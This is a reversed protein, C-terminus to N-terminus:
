LRCLVYSCGLNGDNAYSHGPGSVITQLGQGAWSHSALLPSAVMECEESRPGLWGCRPRDQAPSKPSQDPWSLVSSFIEDRLLSPVKIRGIQYRPVFLDGTVSQSQRKEHRAGINDTISEGPQQLPMPSTVSLYCHGARGISTWVLVSVCPYRHRAPGPEQVPLWLDVLALPAALIECSFLSKTIIHRTLCLSWPSFM